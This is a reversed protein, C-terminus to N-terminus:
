PPPIPGPPPVFDFVWDCYCEAGEFPAHEPRFGGQKLPRGQAASRVGFISGDAMRDLDWDSSGTIPDPYLRRLHRLMVPGRRDELLDDLTAPFQRDGAPGRLFYSEIARQYQSGTWLLQAERDRRATVTWLTGATAVALGLLVVAFLLGLYTFGGARQRPQSGPTHTAM